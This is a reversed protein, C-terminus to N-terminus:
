GRSAPGSAAISSPLMFSYAYLTAQELFFRLRLPVGGTEAVAEELRRAKGTRRWTVPHDPSNGQVPVCDDRGFGEISRGEFTCLEVRVRGPSADANISLSGGGFHLPTTEIVGAGGTVRPRIGVFRDKPVQCLGIGKEYPGDGQMHANGAYYVWVKDDHVLMQSATSIFMGDWSGPRLKLFPERGAVRRWRLGDRSVALQTDCSAVEPYPRSTYCPKGDQMALDDIHFVSLLGIYISGYRTVSFQHFQHNAGGDEEDSRM